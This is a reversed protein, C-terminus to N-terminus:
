QPRRDRTNDGILADSPVLLVEPSLSFAQPVTLTEFNEYPQVLRDLSWVTGDIGPPVAAVLLKGGDREEVKRGYRFAFAPQM